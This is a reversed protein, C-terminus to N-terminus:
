SQVGTTPQYEKFSSCWREFESRPILTRRGLKVTRPGGGNKLLKYFFSRSVGAAECVEDVSMNALARAASLSRAAEIEIQRQALIAGLSPKV